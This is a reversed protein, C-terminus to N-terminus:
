FINTEIIENLKRLLLMDPLHVGGQAFSDDFKNCSYRKIFHILQYYMLM